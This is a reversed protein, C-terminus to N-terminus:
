KELKVERAFVMIMVYIGGMLAISSYVPLLYSMVSFYAIFILTKFIYIKKKGFCMIVALRSWIFAYFFYGVVGIMYIYSSASNLGLYKVEADRSSHMPISGIGKGFRGGQEVGYAVAGARDDGSAIMREVNGTSYLEIKEMITDDLINRVTANTKYLALVALLALLMVVAYRLRVNIRVKKIVLFYIVLTVPLSVYFGRSSNMLSLMLSLCIFFINYMLLKKNKTEYYKNFNLIITLLSWIAWRTTGNIGLFGTIQDFYADNSVLGLASKNMLFYPIFYQGIIIFSNVIMYINLWKFLWKLFSEAFGQNNKYINILALIVVMTGAMSKLDPILYYTNRNVITTYLCLLIFSTIIVVEEYDKVYIHKTHKQLLVIVAFLIMLSEQIGRGVWIWHAILVYFMMLILLIFDFVDKTKIRIM